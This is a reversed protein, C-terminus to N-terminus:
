KSKEESKRILAGCLSLDCVLGRRDLIYREVMMVVVRKPAQIVM